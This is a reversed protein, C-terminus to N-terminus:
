LMKTEGHERGLFRKRGQAPEAGEVLCDSRGELAL